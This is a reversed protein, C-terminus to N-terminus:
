WDKKDQKPDVTMGKKFVSILAPFKEDAQEKLYNGIKNDSLDGYSQTKTKMGDPYSAFMMHYTINDIRFKYRGDKAWLHFKFDITGDYIAWGLTKKKDINLAAANVITFEKEDFNINNDATKFNAIIWTKARKYLDAQNTGTQPGFLFIFGKIAAAKM